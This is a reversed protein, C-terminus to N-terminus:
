RMIVTDAYGEPDLDCPEVVGFPVAPFGARKASNLARHWNGSVPQKGFLPERQCAAPCATIPHM